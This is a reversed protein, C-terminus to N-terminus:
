QEGSGPSSVAGPLLMELESDYREHLADTRARSLLGGPPGDLESFNWKLYTLLDARERDSALHRNAATALRVGTGSLRLEPPPTQAAVAEPLELEGAAFVDRLFDVHGQDTRRFDHVTVADSGFATTLKHHLPLWSLNDLDVSGLWQDIDATSGEAVSRAHHLELLQAQPCVSLLVVRRYPRTAEALAMISAEAEAHVGSGPPGGFAPGLLEGSGAVVDIDQDAFADRLTAALAPADAVVTDGPGLGPALAADALGRTRRMRWQEAHRTLCDHVLWSATPVAGVHLVVIPEPRAV